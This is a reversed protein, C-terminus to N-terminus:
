KDIFRSTKFQDALLRLSSFRLSEKKTYITDSILVNFAGIRSGFEMDTSMDGVMFSKSFDIEPFEEKAELAMGINPKRCKPKIEKRHPCYYVRDIRGGAEIVKNQMKWHINELDMKSMMGKGIGQQNTVVMIRGFLKSLHVIAELSGEIWKFEAENKVYDEPRHTNIVGDRDLFLTWTSDIIPLIMKPISSQALEYDAPIGIDIFYGESYFPILNLESKFAEFFDKELSFCYPMEFHDFVGPPLIYIGGNIYGNEIWTKEKFNIIKDEVIELVGYRDSNQIQKVALIINKTSLSKSYLAQIDIDFYTDGNILLIPEQWKRSLEYILGGTGRPESEVEYKIQVGHYESHFFNSIVESMHGTLMVISKIGKKKLDLIIYHLFPLGTIEAMPKPKDSVVSALRTGKGGALIVAKEIM